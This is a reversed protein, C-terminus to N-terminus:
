GNKTTAFKPIQKFFYPHETPHTTDEVVFGQIICTKITFFHHPPIGPPAKFVFNYKTNGQGVCQELDVAAGVFDEGVSDGVV